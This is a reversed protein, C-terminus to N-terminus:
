PTEQRGAELPEHVVTAEHLRQRREQRPVGRALRSQRRKYLPKARDRRERLPLRSGDFLRRVSADALTAIRHSQGANVSFERYRRVRASGGSRAAIEERRIKARRMKARRRYEGHEGRPGFRTNLRQPDAPM